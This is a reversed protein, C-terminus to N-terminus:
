TTTNQVKSFKEKQKNETLCNGLQALDFNLQEFTGNASEIQSHITNEHESLIETIKDIKHSKNQNQHKSPSSAGDNLLRAKSKKDAGSPTM